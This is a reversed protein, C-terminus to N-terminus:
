YIRVNEKKTWGTTTGSQICYWGNIEKIIKVESYETIQLIKGSNLEPISKVAGETYVATQKKSLATFTILIFLLLISLILYPVPSKLKLFYIIIAFLILTGLAIFLFKLILKKREKVKQSIKELSNELIIEEETTEIASFSDQFTKDQFNNQKKISSNSVTIFTEPLTVEVITGDYSLAKIKISPVKIKGKAMPTWEFDCVPIMQYSFHNNPNGSSVIEYDKIKSFLSNKPLTYDINLVQSSYQIYVTFKIKKSVPSTIVSSSSSASIWPGSSFKASLKPVMKEMPDTIFLSQFPIYFYHGAIKLELPNIKHEGSTEFIYWLEILTDNNKTGTKRLTKFVINEQEIPTSIEVALPSTKPITLHFKIEKQTVLEINEEPLIILKNIEDESILPSAFLSGTFLVSIFTLLRIIFRFNKYKRQKEM